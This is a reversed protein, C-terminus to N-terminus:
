TEHSRHKLQQEDWGGHSAMALCRPLNHIGGSTHLRHRKHGVHQIGAANQVLGLRQAARHKRAPHFLGRFAMPSDNQNGTLDTENTFLLFWPNQYAPQCSGSMQQSLSIPRAATSPKLQTELEQWKFLIRWSEQESAM